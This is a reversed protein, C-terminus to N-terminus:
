RRCTDGKGKTLHLNRCSTRTSNQLLLYIECVRVVHRVVHHVVHVRVCAGGCAHVCVVVCTGNFTSFWETRTFEVTHPVMHLRISEEALPQTVEGELLVYFRAMGRERFIDNLFIFYSIFFSIHFIFYSFHFFSFIFFRFFSFVFFSIYYICYLYLFLIQFFLLLSIFYIFLYFFAVVKPDL